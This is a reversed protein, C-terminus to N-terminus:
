DNWIGKASETAIATWAEDKVEAGYRKYYNEDYEDRMAQKWLYLAQEFVSSRSVGSETSSQVFTDVIHLLEADM